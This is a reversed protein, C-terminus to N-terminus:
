FRQLLGFHLKAESWTDDRGLAIEVRVLGSASGGVFGVGYGVPADRLDELSRTEDKLAAGDAFGYVRSGLGLLYRAELRLVLAEEVSFWAEPYGRLSRM